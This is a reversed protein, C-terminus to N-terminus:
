WSAAMAMARCSCAGSRKRRSGSGLRRPLDEGDRQDAESIRRAEQARRRYLRGLRQELPVAQADLQIMLMPSVARSPRSIPLSRARRIPWPSGTTARRGSRAVAAGARHWLAKGPAVTAKGTKPDVTGWNVPVYPKASIFKGTAANLVYFYGNKPAHMVVRQTKGAIPLDALTITSTCTYDWDRKRFKRIIGSIDAPPPMSRSSRASSCITARAARAIIGATRAAMARAWTFWISSRTTPSQIGHIPAAGLTKWLGDDNWTKRIM